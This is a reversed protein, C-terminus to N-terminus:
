SLTSKEVAAESLSVKEIDAFYEHIVDRNAGGNGYAALTPCASTVNKGCKKLIRNVPLAAFYNTHADAGAGGLVSFHTRLDERLEEFPRFAEDVHRERAPNFCRGLLFLLRSGTLYKYCTTIPAHRGNQSKTEIRVYTAEENAFKRQIAHDMVVLAPTCIGLLGLYLALPAEDDALLQKVEARSLLVIRVIKKAIERPKTGEAIMRACIEDTKQFHRHSRAIDVGLKYADGPDMRGDLFAKMEKRIENTMSPAFFEMLSSSGFPFSLTINTSEDRIATLLVKSYQNPEIDGFARCTRIETHDIAPTFLKNCARIGIRRQKLEITAGARNECLVPAEDSLPLACDFSNPINPVPLQRLVAHFEKDGCLRWTLAAASTLAALRGGSTKRTAYDSIGKLILVPVQEHQCAYVVGYGEMEVQSVTTTCKTHGDELYRKYTEKLKDVFQRRSVVLDGSAAVTKVAIAKGAGRDPPEQNVVPEENGKLWGAYEGELAKFWKNATSSWDLAKARQLACEPLDSRGGFSLSLPVKEALDLVKVRKLKYDMREFLWWGTSDVKGLSGYVVKQPIGVDGRRLDENDLSGSLGALVVCRPRHLRILRLTDPAAWVNGMGSLQALGVAIGDIRFATTDHGAFPLHWQALSQQVVWFEEPIACLVLIGGM